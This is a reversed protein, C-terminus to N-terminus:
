SHKSRPVSLGLWQNVDIDPLFKFFYKTCNLRDRWTLKKSSSRPGGDSIEASSDDSATEAEGDFGFVGIARFVPKYSEAGNSQPATCQRTKLLVAM